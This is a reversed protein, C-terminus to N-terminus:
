VYNLSYSHIGYAVDVENVSASKSYALALLELGFSICRREQHAGM